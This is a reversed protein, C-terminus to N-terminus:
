HTILAKHYHHILLLKIFESSIIDGSELYLIQKLKPGIERINRCKKTNLIRGLKATTIDKPNIEEQLWNLLIENKNIITPLFKDVMSNKYLEKLEPTTICNSHM